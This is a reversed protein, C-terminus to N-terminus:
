KEKAFRAQQQELETRGLHADRVLILFRFTASKGPQLTLTREPMKPDYAHRGIPNAAFLGYGRAHWYTPYNVSSPHNFIAITVPKGDIEGTLGM